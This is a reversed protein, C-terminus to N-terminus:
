GDGCCEWWGAGFKGKIKYSKKEWIQNEETMIEMNKLHKM